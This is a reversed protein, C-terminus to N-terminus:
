NVASLQHIKGHILVKKNTLRQKLDQLRKEVKNTEDENLSLTVATNKYVKDKIKLFNTNFNSKFSSNLVNIQQIFEERYDNLVLRFELSYEDIYKIIDSNNFYHKEETYSVTDTVGFLRKFWSNSKVEKTKTEYKTKKYKDFQNITITNIESALQSNFAKTRLNINSISFLENSVKKLFELHSKLADNINSNLDTDISIKLNEIITKLKNQFEVVESYSLANEKLYSNKLRNFTIDIKSLVERLKKEDAIKDNITKFLHSKKSELSEIEKTSEIEIRKREEISLNKLNEIELDVNSIIENQIVEVKDYLHKYQDKFHHNLIYDEIYLKLSGLGSYILDKEVEDINNDSLKNLLFEKQKNSLCSNEVLQYGLYDSDPLFKTRFNSIDNKESRTLKNSDLQCIKAYKACLPFIKPNKIDFNELFSKVKSIIVEVPKKEVDEGDIKNLVFIIRELNGKNSKIVDSIEKLTSDDDNSDMKEPDLVYLVLPLNINDKLYEYTKRQHHQAGASNPGPTDIFHVKFKSTNLNNIPGELELSINRFDVENSKANWDKLFKSINETETESEELNFYSAKFNKLENNVKITCTTATTAGSDEHLFDQGIMANLVTSKGSSMTAIVPIEIVTNYTNKITPLHKKISNIEITDMSNVLYYFYNDIAEYKLKIDQDEISIISFDNINVNEELIYDIVNKEYEDVGCIKVSFTDNNTFPIIKTLFEEFWETIRKGEFNKLIEEINDKIDKIDCDLNFEYSLTDYNISIQM